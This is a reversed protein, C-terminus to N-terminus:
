PRPIYVQTTYNLKCSQFGHITCCHLNQRLRKYSFITVTRQPFVLIDCSAMSLIWINFLGYCLVFGFLSRQLCSTDFEEGNNANSNNSSSNDNHSQNHLTNNCLKNGHHQHHINIWGALLFLHIAMATYVLTHNIM